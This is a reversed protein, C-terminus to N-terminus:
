RKGESEDLPASFRKCAGALAILNVMPGGQADCVAEFLDDPVRDTPKDARWEVRDGTTVGALGLRVWREFRSFHDPDYEIRARERAPIRRLEFRTAHVDPKLYATACTPGRPGQDPADPQYRTAGAHYRRWPHQSRAQEKEDESLACSADSEAVQEETLEDVRVGRSEAFKRLAEKRMVRLAEAECEAMEAEIRDHDWADDHALILVGPADIRHAPVRLGKLM